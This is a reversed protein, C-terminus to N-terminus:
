YKRLIFLKTKFLHNLTDDGLLLSLSMFIMGYTNMKPPVCIVCVCLLACACLEM